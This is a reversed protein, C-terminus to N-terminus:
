FLSFIMGIVGAVIFASACTAVTGYNEPSEDGKSAFQAVLIAAVMGALYAQWYNISDPVPRIGFSLGLLFYLIPIRSGLSISVFSFLVRIWGGLLISFGYCLGIIISSLM